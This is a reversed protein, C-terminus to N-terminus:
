RTGFLSKLTSDFIRIIKPTLPAPTEEITANRLGNVASRIEIISAKYTERQSIALEELHKISRAISEIPNREAKRESHSEVTGTSTVYVESDDAAERERHCCCFNCSDTAQLSIDGVQITM